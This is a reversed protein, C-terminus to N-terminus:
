IRECYLLVTTRSYAYRVAMLMTEPQFADAFNDGFVIPIYLYIVVGIRQREM